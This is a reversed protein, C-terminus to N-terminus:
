DPTHPLTLSLILHTPINFAYQLLLWCVLLYIILYACLCACLCALLCVLLCACSCVPVYAFLCVLFSVLLCAFVCSLLCVCLFALRCGRTVTYTNTYKHPSSSRIFRSTSHSPLPIPPSPILHITTLPLYYPINHSPFIYQSFSLHITLLVSTDYLFYTCLCFGLGLGLGLGRSM